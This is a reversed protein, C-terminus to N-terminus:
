RERRRPIGLREFEGWLSEIEEHLHEDRRAGEVQAREVKEVVAYQTAFSGQGMDAPLDFGSTSVRGVTRGQMALLIAVVFLYSALFLALAVECKYVVVSDLAYTPVDRPPSAQAGTLLAAVAASLVLGAFARHKRRPDIPERM